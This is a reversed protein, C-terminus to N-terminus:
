KRVQGKGYIVYKYSTLEEVGVPGRAHIKDTSIGIEAGKGFQGGDTFRTSANVYVCASDVENLFKEARAIDLNDRTRSSWPLQILWDLYTRVVTSEPSFPAMKELRSAEKEATVQTEKPMKASKKETLSQASTM